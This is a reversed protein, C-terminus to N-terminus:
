ILDKRNIEELDIPEKFYNYAYRAGLEFVFQVKNTSYNTIKSYNM